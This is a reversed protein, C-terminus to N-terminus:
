FVMWLEKLSDKQDAMQYAMSLDLHDVKSLDKRDAMQYSM